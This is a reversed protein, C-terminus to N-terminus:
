SVTRIGTRAPTAVTGNMGDTIAGDPLPPYTGTFEVEFADPLGDLDTDM